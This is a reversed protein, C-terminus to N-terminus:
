KSNRERIMAALHEPAANDGDGHINRHEAADCLAACAEREAAVAERIAATLDRQLADFWGSASETRRHELMKAAREEPTMMTHTEESRSVIVQDTKTDIVKVSRCLWDRNIGRSYQIMAKIGLSEDFMVPDFHYEMVHLLNETM